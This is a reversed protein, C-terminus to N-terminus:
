FVLKIEDRIVIFFNIKLIKEGFLIKSIKEIDEREDVIICWVKELGVVEVVVYIFFNGIVEYKDEGVEKVIVFVWNRGGIEDFFKVILLIIFELVDIGEVLEIEDRYLYILKGIKSLNSM